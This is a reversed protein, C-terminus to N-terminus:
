KLADFILGAFRARVTCRAFETCRWWFIRCRQQYKGHQFCPVRARSSGLHAALIVNSRRVFLAALLLL